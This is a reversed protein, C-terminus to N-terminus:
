QLIGMLVLTAEQRQSLVSRLEEQAKELEGTAAKRAARLAELRSKIEAPSSGESDLAAKLADSEPLSIRSSSSSKGDSNSDKSHFGSYRSGMAQRQALQVKELMPQIVSWEEDTAKLAAKAYENMKQRFKEYRDEKSASSSSQQPDQAHVSSVNMVVACVFAVTIATLQSIKM